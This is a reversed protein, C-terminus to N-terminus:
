RNADKKEKRQKRENETKVGHCESCLIQFGDAECYMRMIYENWDIFGDEVSVVPDIHDVQVETAKFLNNCGACKYRNSMKGTRPDLRKGILARNLAEYKQPWKRSGMRIVSKIFSAMRSATWAGGNFPKVTNRTAM